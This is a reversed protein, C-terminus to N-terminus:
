VIGIGVGLSEVNGVGRVMSDEPKSIRALNLGAVGSIEHDPLDVGAAALHVEVPASGVRRAAIRLRRIAAPEHRGVSDRDIGSAIEPDGIGEVPTNKAEGPGEVIRAAREYRIQHNALGVKRGARVADSSAVSKEARDADGEGVVAMEHDRVGAVM